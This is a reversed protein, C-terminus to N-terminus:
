LDRGLIANEVEGFSGKIVKDIPIWMSQDYKVVRLLIFGMIILFKIVEM